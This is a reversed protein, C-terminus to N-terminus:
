SWHKVKNVVKDREDQLIELLLGEPVTLGYESVLKEFYWVTQNPHNDYLNSYISEDLEPLVFIMCYLRQLPKDWGMKVSYTDGDITSTQEFTHLSM